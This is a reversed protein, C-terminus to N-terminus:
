EVLRLKVVDMTESEEGTDFEIAALLRGGVEEVSTVIGRM